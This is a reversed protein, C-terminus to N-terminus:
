KKKKSKTAAAEAEREADAEVQLKMQRAAIIANNALRDAVGPFLDEPNRDDKFNAAILGANIRLGDPWVILRATLGAPETVPGGGQSTGQYPEEDIRIAGFRQMVAVATEETAFYDMNILNRSVVEDGNKNVVYAQPEFAPTLKQM